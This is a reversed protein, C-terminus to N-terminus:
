LSPKARVGTSVSVGRSLVEATGIEFGMTMTKPSHDDHLVGNDSPSLGDASRSKKRGNKRAAGAATRYFSVQTDSSVQGCIQEVVFGEWSAGTSPHGLLDNVERIGLLHHLVARNEALAM